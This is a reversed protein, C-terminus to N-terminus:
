QSHRRYENPTTGNKAKFLKTFYSSSSFGTSLCVETVTLAPNNLLEEAHALRVSNLYAVFSIGLERKFLTSLYTSNVHITEAASKLSINNRYHLNIYTIVKKIIPSSGSYVKDTASKALAATLAAGAETIEALNQAENIKKLLFFNQYNKQWDDDSKMLQTFFAILRLKIMSLNGSEFTMLAEMYISFQKKCADISGSKIIDVLKNEAHYPYDIDLRAKNMQILKNGIDSQEQHRQYKTENTHHIELSATIASQFLTSLYTIEKPAYLKLERVLTMLRSYDIAEALSSDLLTSIIKKVDNGMAIPGAILFGYVKTDMMLAYCLNILGANCMFIYVDPLSLSIHMSSMLNRTCDFNENGYQSNAACIKKDQLTTWQEKGVSSFYTVPTNTIRSFAMLTNELQVIKKNMIKDKFIMLKYLHEM